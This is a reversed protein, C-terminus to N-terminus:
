RSLYDQWCAIAKKIDKEQTRKNGGCLLLIIHAGDNGYYIRYGAGFNMRLEFVGDAIYKHDGFNGLVVRDLRAKVRCRVVKDLDEMWEIFPKEGEQTVYIDLQKQQIVWMSRNYGIPYLMYISKSANM